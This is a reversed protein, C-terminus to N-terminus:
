PHRFVESLRKPGNIARKGIAERPLSLVRLIGAVAMPIRLRLCAHPARKGPFKGRSQIGRRSPLNASLGKTGAPSAYNHYLM